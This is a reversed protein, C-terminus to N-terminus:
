REKGEGKQGVFPIIVRELPPDFYRAAKLYNAVSSRYATQKASTHLCPFRAIRYYNFALLYNREAEVKHGLKDQEKAKEEYPKAIGSWVQCWHDHDLSQLMACARLVDEELTNEMPHRQIRVRQMVDAKLEELTKPQYKYQYM